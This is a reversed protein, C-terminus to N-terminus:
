LSALIGLLGIGLLAVGCTYAVITLFAGIHSPSFRGWHYYFALTLLGVVVAATWFVAWLAQPVSM